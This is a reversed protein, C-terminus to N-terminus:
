SAPGLLRLHKCLHTSISEPQGRPMKELTWGQASSHPAGSHVAFSCIVCCVDAYLGRTLLMSNYDHSAEQQPIGGQM